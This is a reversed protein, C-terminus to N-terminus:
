CVCSIRLCLSNGDWSELSFFHFTGMILHEEDKNLKPYTGCEIDSKTLYM